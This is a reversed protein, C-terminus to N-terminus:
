KYNKRPLSRLCRVCKCTVRFSPSASFESSTSLLCVEDAFRELAQRLADWGLDRLRKEELCVIDMQRETTKAVDPSPNEGTEEEGLGGQDAVGFESGPQSKQRNHAARIDRITEEPKVGGSNNGEQHDYFSAEGATVTRISGHSDQHVLGRTLPPHLSPAALSALTSSGSRSKVRTSNRRSSRGSKLRHRPVSSGSSETDTSRPSPSSAEDDDKDEGDEGEDETWRHQGAVRSLPSPTPVTKLPALGPSVLPMLGPDEDSSGGGGGGGVGGPTDGGEGQDGSGSSDSDDLAGEGVHRLSVNRDSPSASHTSPTSVSPRRYISSRRAIGSDVSERRGM